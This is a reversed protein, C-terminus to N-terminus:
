MNYRLVFFKEGRRATQSKINKYGGNRHNVLVTNLLQQERMLPTCIYFQKKYNVIFIFYIKFASFFVREQWAILIQWVFFGRM